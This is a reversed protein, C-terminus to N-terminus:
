FHLSYPTLRFKSLHANIINKPIIKLKIIELSPFSGRLFFISAITFMGGGLFRLLNLYEIPHCLKVFTKYFGKSNNHCM